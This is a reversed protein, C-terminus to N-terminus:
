INNKRLITSAVDKMPMTIYAQHLQALGAVTDLYLLAVKAESSNNVRQVPRWEYHSSKDYYHSSTVCLHGVFTRREIRISAPHKKKRPTKTSNLTKELQEMITPQYKQPSVSVVIEKKNNESSKEMASMFPAFCFSLVIMYSKMSLVRLAPTEIEM